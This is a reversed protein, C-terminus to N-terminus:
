KKDQLINRSVPIDPTDSTGDDSLVIFSVLSIGAVVLIVITWIFWRPDYGASGPKSSSANANPM